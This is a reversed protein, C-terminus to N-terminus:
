DTWFKQQRFNGGTGRANWPYVQGCGNFPVSQGGMMPRELALRGSTDFVQLRCPPKATFMHGNWDVLDAIDPRVESVAIPVGCFQSWFSWM